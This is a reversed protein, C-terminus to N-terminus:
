WHSGHNERATVEAGSISCVNRALFLVAAHMCARLRTRVGVHVCGHVRTCLSPHAGHRRLRRRTRSSGLGHPSGPRVRLHVGALGASGASGVAGATGAAGAVGATGATRCAASEASEASEAGAAGAAGVAGAAGGGRRAAHGRADRLAERARQRRAGLVGMVMMIKVPSGATARERRLPGAAQRRPRHSLRSLTASHTAVQINFAPDTIVPPCTMGEVPTYRFSDKEWM